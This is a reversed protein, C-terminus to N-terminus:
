QGLADLLPRLQAADPRARGVSSRYVPQRVQSMSATRVPRETKHFALCAEDWELGCYGVIRRADAEFDGVLDEYRVELMAGPPLVERWHAM